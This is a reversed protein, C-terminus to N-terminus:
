KVRSVGYLVLVTTLIGGAFWLAREFNGMSREAGLNKALNDNQDLLIKKEEQYRLNINSYSEVQKQLSENLKEFYDREILKVKVEKGAQESFLFGAFPTKADKELYVVDALSNQPILCALLIILLNRM